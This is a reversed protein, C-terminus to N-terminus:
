GSSDAPLQSNITTSGPKDASARIGAATITAGARLREQALRVNETQTAATGPPLGPLCESTNYGANSYGEAGKGAEGLTKAESSRGTCTKLADSITDQGAGGFVGQDLHM